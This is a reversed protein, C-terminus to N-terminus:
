SAFGVLMYRPELAYSAVQTVFHPPRQHRHNLILLQNYRPLVPTIQENHLTMLIGGWDWKWTKCLYYIFGTEGAYDDIHARFFDGEILKYARLDIADFQAGALKQLGPKIQNDYVETVLPHQELERSRKFSALYTEDTDPMEPYGTNFVHQYHQPRKQFVEEWTAAIFAQRLAMATEELMANDVSAMGQNYQRYHEATFERM